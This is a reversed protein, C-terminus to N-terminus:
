GGQNEVLEYDKFTAGDIIPTKGALWTVVLNEFDNIFINPLINM